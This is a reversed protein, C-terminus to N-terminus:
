VQEKNNGELRELERQVDLRARQLHDVMNAVELQVSEPRSQTDILEEVKLATSAASSLGLNNLSTRLRHATERMSPAESAHYPAEFKGLAHDTEKMFINLMRRIFEPNGQAARELMSLNVSQFHM